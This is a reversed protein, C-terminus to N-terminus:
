YGSPRFKPDFRKANGPALGLRLQKEREQERRSNDFERRAESNLPPAPNVNPDIGDFRQTNLLPNGAIQSLEESAQELTQVPGNHRGRSKVAVGLQNRLYAQVLDRHANEMAITVDKYISPPTTPPKRSTDGIIALLSDVSEQSIHGLVEKIKDLTSKSDKRIAM